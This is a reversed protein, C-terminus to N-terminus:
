NKEKENLLEHLKTKFPEYEEANYMDLEFNTLESALRINQGKKGIAMARQTEDVFVAARKKIYKGTAEDTYEEQTVVVVNSIEAPQLARAILKTPDEDWEIIDVREGGLEDMVPQIRAGRQGICAGVPDIKEDKSKVAVKSRFGADRSIAMVEVDHHEIEPIEQELLKEVLRPHTRSVQLQPGKTTQAVQDLYVRIRKGPFYRENPTQQRAPLLVSTREIELFVQSGEVRNVVATLLEGERDKFRSFLAQREAEHLKQLIVQKAAQAAIRGYGLPTADIKIEDGIEVDKKLKKAEDWSIEFSENEVTEVVEKIILISAFDVDDRLVVEIEQEKDGYDKRYATAIAAKVAELVVEQSINKEACIQNLAALFQPKM